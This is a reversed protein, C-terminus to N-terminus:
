AKKATVMLRGPDGRATNSAINRAAIADAWGASHM